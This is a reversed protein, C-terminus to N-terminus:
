RRGNINFNPTFKAYIFENTAIEKVIIRSVSDTHHYPDNFNNKNKTLINPYNFDYVDGLSEIDQKFRSYEKELKFEKVKDQLEIHTPSIIFALKIKKEKCYKSIERLENYYNTPYSYNSLYRSEFILQNKWFEQKAFPPRYLDIREKLILSRCILYTSSFTYRNSLYRVFSNKIELSPKARNRLLTGSYTEISVGWLVKKITHRTTVYKFIEIADQITGGGIAINAVKEKSYNEFLSPTLEMIRSDGLIITSCPSRDFAILKFLYPNDKQSIENKLRSLKENKGESFYNYPDIILEVIIILIFPLSFLLLKKIYNIM